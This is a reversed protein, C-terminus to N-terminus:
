GLPEGSFRKWLRPYRQALHAGTEKFPTGSPQTTPSSGAAPFTSAPDSLPDLGTKRTWVDIAAYAFEEFECPDEMDDPIASGLGDADTLAREFTDRGRSILWTRFYEFGDDAMGGHIVHAAGWLDWTLARRLAHQFATEFGEITGPDLGDLVDHLAHLQADQDSRFPVTKAILSWFTAPEM